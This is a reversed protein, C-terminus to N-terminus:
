KKNVIIFNNIAQIVESLVKDLPQTADIKIFNKVNSGIYELSKNKGELYELTTEIKRQHLVNPPAHLFLTCDPKPLVNYLLWSYIRSSMRYNKNNAKDIAGDFLYHRDFLITYGILQFYSAILQRYLHESIRNLTRFTAGVIGRTDEKRNENITHISLNKIKGKINNRKKYRYVKLFHMLRSTPLAYNSSEINLGMYIYKMKVPPNALIKKAVTTKGSGDAGILAITAM